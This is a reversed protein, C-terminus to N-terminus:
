IYYKGAKDEVMFTIGEETEGLFIYVETKNLFIDDAVSKKIMVPKEYKDEVLQSYTNVMHLAPEAPFKETVPILFEKGNKEVILGKHINIEHFTNFEQHVEYEKIISTNGLILGAIKQDYVKMKSWDIHDATLKLNKTSM